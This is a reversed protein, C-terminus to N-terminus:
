SCGTLAKIRALKEAELLAIMEINNFGAQYTSINYADEADDLAIIMIKNAKFTDGLNHLAEKLADEPSWSKGNHCYDVLRIPQAM